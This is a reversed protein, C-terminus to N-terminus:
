AGLVPGWEVWLLWWQNIEWISNTTSAEEGQHAKKIIEDFFTQKARRICFWLHTSLSKLELLPASIARAHVLSDCTASCNDNWWPTHHGKDMFTKTEMSLRTAESMTDLLHQALKELNETSNCMPPLNLSDIYCEFEKTWWDMNEPNIKVSTCSQLPAISFPCTVSFSIAGHDSCLSLPFLIAWDLIVDHSDLLPNSITYDIISSSSGDLSICTVETLDNHVSLDNSQIWNVFDCGLALKCIKVGDVKSLSLHQINFDRCILTPHELMPILTFDWTIATLNNGHLYIPCRKFAFDNIVIDIFYYFQCALVNPDMDVLINRGKRFYVLTSPHNSPLQTDIPPSICTWNPNATSGFIHKDSDLNNKLSGIPGWWPDAFIIVDFSSYNANALIAHMRINSRAVNVQMFKQTILSPEALALTKPSQARASDATPVVLM